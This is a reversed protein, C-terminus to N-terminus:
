NGMKGLPCNHDRGSPDGSPVPVAAAGRLPYIPGLRRNPLATAWEHRGVSDAGPAPRWLGQFDHSPSLSRLVESCSQPPAGALAWGGVGEDRVEASSLLAAREHPNGIGADRRDRVLPLSLSHLAIGGPTRQGFSQLGNGSTALGLNLSM